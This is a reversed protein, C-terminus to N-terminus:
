RREHGGKEAEERIVQAGLDVNLSRAVKDDGTVVLNGCSRAKLIQKLVDRFM